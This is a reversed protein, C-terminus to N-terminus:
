FVLHPEAVFCSNCISESFYLFPLLQKLFCFRKFINYILYIFLYYIYLYIFYVYELSYCVNFLFYDAIKSLNFIKYLIAYIVGYGM